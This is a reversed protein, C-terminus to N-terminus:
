FDDMACLLEYMARLYPVLDGEEYLQRQEDRSLGIFGATFGACAKEGCSCLFASRLFWLETTNYNFTLEEGIPIPKKAVLLVHGNNIIIKCNPNHSHNLFNEDQYEAASELFVDTDIQLAFDTAEEPSLKQGIFEFIFEGAAFNKAARLGKFGKEPLDFVEAVSSHGYGQELM